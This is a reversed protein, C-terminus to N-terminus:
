AGGIDRALRLLEVEGASAEPGYRCIVVGTVACTPCRTALVTTMDAPDSAGELRRKSAITLQDPRVTTSCSVCTILGSDDDIELQGDYGAEAFDHLVEALSTGSPHPSPETPRDVDGPPSAARPTEM